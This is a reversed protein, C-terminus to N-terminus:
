TLTQESTKLLERAAKLVPTEADSHRRGRVLNLRRTIDVFGAERLLQVLACRAQYHKTARTRSIIQRIHLGSAKEVTRVIHLAADPLPSPGAAGVQAALEMRNARVTERRLALRTKALELRLEDQRARALDLQSTM